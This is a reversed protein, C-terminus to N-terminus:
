SSTRGLIESCYQKSREDRDFHLRVTQLIVFRVPIRTIYPTKSEIKIIYTKKIKQLSNDLARRILLYCKSRLGRCDYQKNSLQGNHRQM